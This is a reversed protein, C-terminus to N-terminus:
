HFIARMEPSLFEQIELSYGGPDSLFFIRIQVEELIKVESNLAVGAKSLRDYCAVVDDVVLTFLVANTEQTQCVGKGEQADVLGFFANGATRYIKAWGADLVQELGLTEGYFKSAEDLGEYYFWTITSKPTVASM